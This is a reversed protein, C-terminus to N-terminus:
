SDFAGAQPPTLRIVGRMAKVTVGHRSTWLEQLIGQQMLCELEVDTVTRSAPATPWSLHDLVDARTVLGICVDNAVVPLAGIAHRRMLGAAAEVSADPVIAVPPATMLDGVTVGVARLYDVALRDKEDFILLWWWRPMPRPALRALLDSETLMGVLHGTAETVPLQALRQDRMRRWALEITEEARLAVVDRRMISAITM